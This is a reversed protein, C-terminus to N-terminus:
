VPKLQFWHYWVEQNLNKNQCLYGFQTRKLVFVKHGNHEEHHEIIHNTFIGFIDNITNEM